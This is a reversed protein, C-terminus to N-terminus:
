PAREDWGVTAKSQSALLSLLDDTPNKQTAACIHRAITHMIPMTLIPCLSYWQQEAAATLRLRPLLSCDEMLRVRRGQRLASGVCVHTIVTKRWHLPACVIAYTHVHACTQEQTCRHMRARPQPCVHTSAHTIRISLISEWINLYVCPHCICPQIFLSVHMCAHM